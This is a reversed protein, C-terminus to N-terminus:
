ARQSIHTQFFYSYNIAKVTKWTGIFLKFFANSLSFKVKSFIKFFDHINVIWM